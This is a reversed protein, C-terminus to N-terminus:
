TILEISGCQLEEPIKPAPNLSFYVFDNANDLYYNFNELVNLGLININTNIYPIAVKVNKLMYGGIIICPIIKIEVECNGAFGSLPLNTKFPPLLNFGFDLASKKNIVTFYAGTDFVFDIRDNAYSNKNYFTPINIHYHGDKKYRLKEIASYEITICNGM